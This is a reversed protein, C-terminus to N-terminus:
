YSTVSVNLKTTSQYMQHINIYLGLSCASVQIFNFYTIPLTLPPPKMLNVVWGFKELKCYVHMCMKALQNKLYHKLGAYCM